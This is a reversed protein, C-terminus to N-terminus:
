WLPDLGLICKLQAERGANNIRSGELSIVDHVLDDLEECGMALLAEITLNDALGEVLRWARWVALSRANALTPEPSPGYVVAVTDGAEMTRVDLERLEVQCVRTGGLQPLERDDCCPQPTTYPLYVVSPGGAPKLRWVEIDFEDDEADRVTAMTGCDRCRDVSGIFACHWADGLRPDPDPVEVEDGEGIGMLQAATASTEQAGWELMGAQALSYLATALYAQGQSRLLRQYRTDDAEDLIVALYGSGESQARVVIDEWLERLVADVPSAPENPFAIRVRPADKPQLGRASTAAITTTRLMAVAQLPNTGELDAVVEPGELYLYIKM